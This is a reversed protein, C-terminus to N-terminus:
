EQLYNCAPSRSRGLSISCFGISTGNRGLSCNANVRVPGLYYPSCKLEKAYDIGGTNRKVEKAVLWHYGASCTSNKQTNWALVFASTCRSVRAVHSSASFVYEGTARTEHEVDAAHEGTFRLFFTAGTWPNFFCEHWIQGLMLTQLSVFGPHRCKSATSSTLKRPPERTRTQSFNKQRLLGWEALLIPHPIRAGGGFFNEGFKCLHAQGCAVLVAFTQTLVLFPTPRPFHLTGKGRGWGTREEGYDGPLSCKPRVVSARSACRSWTCTDREERQFWIM